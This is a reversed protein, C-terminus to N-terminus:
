SLEEFLFLHAAYLPYNIINGDQAFNMLTFRSLTHSHEEQNCYEEGYVKLSKKMKSIGAKVELPYIIHNHNILFDVQCITLLFTLKATAKSTWYYIDNKFKLSLEQAVYNETLAGKFEEFLRNGELIIEPKLRAMTGLLGVDLAYIKYANHKAYIDLPIKSTNTQRVCHILEASLLWQLAEEYHVARASKRIASFIFKKNEKGLQSPLLDWVQM